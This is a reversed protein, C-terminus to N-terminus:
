IHSRRVRVKEGSSLWYVSLVRRNRSTVCTPRSSFIVLDTMYFYSMNCTELGAKDILSPNININIIQSTSVYCCDGRPILTEVTWPSTLM